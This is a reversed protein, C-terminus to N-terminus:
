SSPAHRAGPLWRPRHTLLCISLPFSHAPAKTTTESPLSCLFCGLSQSTQIIEASQPMPATGPQRTRPGPHNPCTPLPGSHPLWPPPPQSHVRSPNTQRHFTHEHILQKSELSQSTRAPATGGPAALVQFTLAGSHLYCFAHNVTYTSPLGLALPIAGLLGGQRCLFGLAWGGHRGWQAM